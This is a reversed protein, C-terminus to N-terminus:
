WSYRDLNNYRTTPSLFTDKPGFSSWHALRTRTSVHQYVLVHMTGTLFERLIMVNVIVDLHCGEYVKAIRTSGWAELDPWYINRTLALTTHEIPSWLLWLFLTEWFFEKAMSELVLLYSLITISLHHSSPIASSNLRHTLYWYYRFCDYITAGPCKLRSRRLGYRECGVVPVMCLGRVFYRSRIVERDVLARSDIQRYNRFWESYLVSPESHLHSM